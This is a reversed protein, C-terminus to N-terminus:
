TQAESKSKDRAEIETLDLESEVKHAIEAPPPAIDVTIVQEPEELADFQSQLLAPNMFHGHRKLLRQQILDFDGKLYVFKVSDDVALIDRYAAKLASCAVIANDNRTSINIIFHRIADLWPARDADTLPIGAHLKEVNAVPHLSDADCFQWGLDASLLEGITSKGSGSVGMLIIVM